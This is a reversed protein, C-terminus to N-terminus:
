EYNEKIKRIEETLDITRLETNGGRLIPPGKYMYEITNKLVQQEALYAVLGNMYLEESVVEINVNDYKFRTNVSVKTVGVKDIGNIRVHYLITPKDIYAEADSVIRYLMSGCKVCGKGALHGNPSQAFDGHHKCTIIVKERALIYEVKDYNYTDNHIKIAKNIFDKTNSRSTESSKLIGCAICSSGLLISAPTVKRISGCNCKHLIPTNVNIYPELVEMGSGINIIDQLYEEHTKLRGM